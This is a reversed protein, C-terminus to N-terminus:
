DQLRRDQVYSAIVQALFIEAKFHFELEIILFNFTQNGLQFPRLTCRGHWEWPRPVGRHQRQGWHRIARLFEYFIWALDSLFQFCKLESPLRVLNQNQQTKIYSQSHSPNPYQISLSSTIIRFLNSSVPIKKWSTGRIFNEGEWEDM